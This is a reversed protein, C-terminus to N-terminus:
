ADTMKWTSADELYEFRYKRVHQRAKAARKARAQDSAALVKAAPAAIGAAVAAAAKATSTPTFWEGGPDGGVAYFGQAAGSGPASPAATAPSTAPGSAITAAPAAPGTGAFTVGTTAPWSQQGPGDSHVGAVLPGSDEGLASIGALGVLGVPLLLPSLLPTFPGFYILPDLV